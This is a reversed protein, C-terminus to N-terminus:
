PSSMSYKLLRYVLGCIATQDKSVILPILGIKFSFDM